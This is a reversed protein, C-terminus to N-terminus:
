QSQAGEHIEIERIGPHAESVIAIRVSRIPVSTGLDVVAIYGNQMGIIPFAEGNNIRVLGRAWVDAGYINAARPFLVLYRGPPKGPWEAAVQGGHRNFWEGAGRSGDLMTQPAGSGVHKASVAVRGGVAKNGSAPLIKAFQQDFEQQSKFVIVKPAKPIKAVRPRRDEDAGSPQAISMSIMQVRKDVKAKVLRSVRPESNLSQRYWFAARRLVQVEIDKSSQALDFWGDALAIQENSGKPESLEKVALEKLTENDGLALMPLGVQWEGKLLCKYQGVVLNCKTDTPDAELTALSTEVEAYRKHLATVDDTRRRISRILSADRSKKAAGWRL